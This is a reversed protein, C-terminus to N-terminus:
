HFLHPLPAGLSWAVPFALVAKLQPTWSGTRDMLGAVAFRISDIFPGTSSIVNAKYRGVMVFITGLVALTLVLAYPRRLALDANPNM